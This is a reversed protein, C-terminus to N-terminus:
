PAWEALPSRVQGRLAEDDAQLSLRRAFGFQEAPPHQNARILELRVASSREDSMEFRETLSLKQNEHEPKDHFNWDDILPPTL